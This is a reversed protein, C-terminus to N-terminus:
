RCGRKARQGSHRHQQPDPSCRSAGRHRHGDRARAADRQTALAPGSATSSSGAPDLVGALLASAFRFAGSSYVDCIEYNGDLTTQGTPCFHVGDPARVVNSGSPGACPEFSLCRLTWTFKGDAEVAQGADVYSVGSNAAALSQYVQNLGTVNASLGASEDLPMGVLVVQAGVARFISIASLADQRYKAYYQPSQLPDGAMCPTFNDGSFALVAVTPRFSQADSQMTALDDCIALGGFAHFVVSAGSQEALYTFDQGAEALVSDGYAAIRAPPAAPAAPAAHAAAGATSGSRGAAAGASTPGIALIMGAAALVAAAVGKVM